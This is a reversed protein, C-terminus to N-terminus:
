DRRRDSVIWERENLDELAIVKSKAFVLWVVGILTCLISLVTFGDTQTECVGHNEACSTSNAPAVVDCALAVVEGTKNICQKWTFTEVLGLAASTPWKAGFNTVTNLFTMYIGGFAPDSVRAFFSMQCVFMINMAVQHVTFAMIVVIYFGWGVESHDTPFAWVLVAFVVGMLLRWPYAKLFLTFPRPGSTRSGFFSTVFINLPVIALVLIGLTDKPIGKEQLKLTTISDAAGFAVRCTLLIASLKIVAPLQCLRFMQVYAQGVTLNDEDNEGINRERKFICIVITSVLFIVGWFMMFNGLSLMGQDQPEARLFRNCFDSSNFALFIVFAMLYGVNQGITNCTSAYGVNKRSLMTLAWGDVAIDQTATLTYLLLFVYTLKPVDPHSTLAGEGLLDQVYSGTWVMIAGIILQTPILWSKRRGFSPLYIADVLPAWFIKLSFPWTSLSFMAQHSYSVNKEQLLLPVAQALGLPIGQLTYLFLLLIISGLDQKIQSLQSNNSRTGEMILDELPSAPSPSEDSRTITGMNRAKTSM